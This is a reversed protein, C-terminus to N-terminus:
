VTLESREWIFGLPQFMLGCGAVDTTYEMKQDASIADRKRLLYAVIKCGPSKGPTSDKRAPRIM